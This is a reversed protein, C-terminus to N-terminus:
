EIEFGIKVVSNTLRRQVPDFLDVEFPKGINNGALDEITTQVAVQYKGAKWAEDPTLQWVRENQTVSKEGRITENGRVVDILRLALAHDLAKGFDIRLPEMTMGKPTLLKWRKTDIPERDPEIVAFRKRFTAKMPNGTAATWVEHIILEYRKGSELAPGIEELPLVGRKIRGPDIFLTLRKMEADWLEEDIQLFPLEIDRGSEDRLKIHDYIGGRSMSVSFYVYFKLLNEPLKEATPYIQTVFAPEPKTMTELRLRTTVPTWDRKGGPLVAPRFEARYDLGRTLPFQPRFQLEDGAIVHEGAMSLAFPDVIGGQNHVFVALLRSWEPANRPWEKLKTLTSSPIGAVVVYANNTNREDTRWHVEFEGAQGRSPTSFLLAATVVAARWFALRLNVTM